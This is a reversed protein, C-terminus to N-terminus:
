RLAEGDICACARRLLSEAKHKDIKGHGFGRGALWGEATDPIQLRAISWRNREEWLAAEFRALPSLPLQNEGENASITELEDSDLQATEHRRKSGDGLSLIPRRERKPQSCERVSAM